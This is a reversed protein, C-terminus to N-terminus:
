ISPDEAPIWRNQTPGLGHIYESPPQSMWRRTALASTGLSQSANDGARSVCSRVVRSILITEPTAVSRDPVHGVVIVGGPGGGGGEAHSTIV